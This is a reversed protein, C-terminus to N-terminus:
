EGNAVEATREMCQKICKDCIHKGTQKNSIMAKAKSKPTKCFSCKPNDVEKEFPIICENKLEM